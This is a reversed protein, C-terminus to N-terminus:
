RSLSMSITTALPLLPATMAQTSNTTARTFMDQGGQNASVRGIMAMLEMKGVTVTMVTTKPTVTATAVFISAILL